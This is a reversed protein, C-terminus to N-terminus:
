AASLKPKHSGRLGGGPEQGWSPPTYKLVGECGREEDWHFIWDQPKLETLEEATENSTHPLILSRLM